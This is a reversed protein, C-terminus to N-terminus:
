INHLKKVLKVLRTNENELNQQKVQLQEVIKKLFSIDEQLATIDISPMAPANENVKAWIKAVNNKYISWKIANPKFSSILDIKLTPNGALDLTQVTGTVFGGKKFEGNTKEYRIMQRYQLKDWEAPDVLKFDSLLSEKDVLKVAGGDAVKVENNADDTISTSGLQTLDFINSSAM